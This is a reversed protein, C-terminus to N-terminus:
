PPACGAIPAVRDARDQADLVEGHAEAAEDGDVGQREVGARALDGRQDARVAGALGGHEVANGAEVLRGFAADRQSVAVRAYPVLEAGQGVAAVCRRRAAVAHQEQELAHGVIQHRLLRADRAGELIDAQELAHRHQFIQQDGLVIASIRADPKM